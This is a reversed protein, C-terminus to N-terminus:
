SDNSLVMRYRPQGARVRAIATNVEQLPLSETMPRIGKAAVMQVMRAMQEPSGMLSGTVSSRRSMLAIGPISIPQSPFGVLWLAGRPRLLNSYEAWPLDGDATALLLDLSGALHAFSAPDRSAVFHEAGLTRAEEEKAATGSFATVECGFAKGFQIALHGLGGIGIVGVRAGPALGLEEFPAYTTIGACMLPAADEDSLGDPLPVAFRGDVRTREAFGGHRGVCIGEQAPCLHSDGAQCMECEGCSGCLFGIGVRQDIRLHDVSKGLAIIRGAVEHGPVLPYDGLGFFTGDILSLDTHCVGCCTIAIEIDHPALPPPEFEFAELQGGAKTAAFARIAM